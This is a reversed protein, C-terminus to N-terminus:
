DSYAYREAGKMSRFLSLKIIVRFVWYSVKEVMFSKVRMRDVRRLTARVVAWDEVGMDLAGVIAAAEAEVAGYVMVARGATEVCGDHM